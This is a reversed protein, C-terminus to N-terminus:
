GTKRYVHDAGSLGSLPHYQEKGQAGGYVCHGCAQEGGAPGNGGSPFGSKKRYLGEAGSLGENRDGRAERGGDGPRVRDPPRGGAQFMRRGRQSIQEAPCARNEASIGKPDSQGDERM